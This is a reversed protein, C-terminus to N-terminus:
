RVRAPGFAHKQCPNFSVAMISANGFPSRVRLVEFECQCRRGDPNRIVGGIDKERFGGIAELGALNQNDVCYDVVKHREHFNRLREESVPPNLLARAQPPEGDCTPDGCSEVFHTGSSNVKRTVERDRNCGGVSAPTTVKIGFWFKLQGLIRWTDKPEACRLQEKLESVDVNTYGANKLMGEAERLLRGTWPYKELLNVTKKEKKLGVTTLDVTVPEGPELIAQGDRKTETFAL